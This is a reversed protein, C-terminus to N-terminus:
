RVPVIRTSGTTGLVFNHLRRRYKTPLFFIALTPYCFIIQQQGRDIAGLKQRSHRDEFMVLIADDMALRQCGVSGGDVM